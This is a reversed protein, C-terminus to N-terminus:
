SAEWKGDDDTATKQIFQDPVREDFDGTGTFQEMAINRCLDALWMDVVQEDAPADYGGERLEEVFKDNWDLELEGHNPKSSDPNINLIKVWGEGKATACGKEYENQDIKGEKRDLELLALDREEGEELHNEAFQREYEDKTIQQHELQADLIALDCEDTDKGHEIEALRVTLDYGSLEYEARAIERTKGKLGWHGPLWGFPILAM